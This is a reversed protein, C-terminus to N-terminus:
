GFEKVLREADIQAGQLEVRYVLAHARHAMEPELCARLSSTITDVSLRERTPGSVGVGLKKVRSAWYYQDYLHLVIVQPRGARVAATTTGAGGHHVVAAVRPLLIEHSV